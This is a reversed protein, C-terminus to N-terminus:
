IKLNLINGSWPSGSKIDNEDQEEGHEKRPPSSARQRQRHQRKKERSSVSRAKETDETHEVTTSQQKLTEQAIKEATLRQVEPHAQLEQAIKEAHGIQALQQIAINYQAAM